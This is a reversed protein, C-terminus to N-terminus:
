NLFFYQFRCFGDFICTTCYDTLYKSSHLWVIEHISKSGCMELFLKLLFYFNYLYFHRFEKSKFCKMWKRKRKDTQWHGTAAAMTLAGTSSKGNSIYKQNENCINRKDFFAKQSNFLYLFCSLTQFFLLFKKQNLFECIFFAYLRVSVYTYLPMCVHKGVFVVLNNVCM